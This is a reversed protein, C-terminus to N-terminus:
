KCWVRMEILCLSKSNLPKVWQWLSGELGEQRLRGILNQDGPPRATTPHRATTCSSTVSTFTQRNVMLLAPSACLFDNACPQVWLHTGPLPFGCIHMTFLWTGCHKRLWETKWGSMEARATRPLLPRGLSTAGGEGKSSVERPGNSTRHVCLLWFFTSPVLSGAETVQSLTRNLSDASPQRITDAELLQRESVLDILAETSEGRAVKM